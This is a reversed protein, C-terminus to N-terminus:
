IHVLDTVSALKSHLELFSVRLTHKIVFLLANAGPHSRTAKANSLSM